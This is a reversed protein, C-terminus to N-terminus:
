GKKLRYFITGQPFVIHCKPRCPKESRVCLTVVYVYLGSPRNLSPPARDSLQRYRKIIKRREQKEQFIYLLGDSQVAIRSGGLINERTFREGKEM